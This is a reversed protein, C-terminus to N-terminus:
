RRDADHFLRAFRRLRCGRIAWKSRAFWGTKEATSGLEVMSVAHTDKFWNNFKDDTPHPLDRETNQATRGFFHHDFREPRYPTPSRPPPVTSAPAFTIPPSAIL